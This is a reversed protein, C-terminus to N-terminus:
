DLRPSLVAAQLLVRPWPKLPQGCAIYYCHVLVLNVSNSRKTMISDRSALAEVADMTTDFELRFGALILKESSTLLSAFDSLHKVWVM